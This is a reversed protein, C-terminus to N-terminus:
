VLGNFGLVIEIGPKSAQIIQQMVRTGGIKPLPPNKSPRRYAEM